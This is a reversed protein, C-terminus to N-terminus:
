GQIKRFGIAIFFHLDQPTVGLTVQVGREREREIYVYLYCPSGGDGCYIRNMLHILGLLM